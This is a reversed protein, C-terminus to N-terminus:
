RAVSRRVLVVAQICHWRLTQRIDGREDQVAVDLCYSWAPWGLHLDRSLGHLDVGM